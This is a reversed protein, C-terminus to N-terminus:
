TGLKPLWAPNIVNRGCLGKLIAAAGVQNSVQAPDYVGDAVFKGSAYATTFSWIYPSLVGKRRYGFGNYAELYVLAHGIDWVPPKPPYNKLADAASEEWTYPFVGGKPEAVPRGVPVRVTRATLPDGNHLHCDFRGSAEMQHLTAVVFWPVGNLQGFGKYRDFNDLIADVRAQVEKAHDIKIESHEFIVGADNQGLGDWDM